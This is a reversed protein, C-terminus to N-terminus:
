EQGSAFGLSSEFHSNHPLADCVSSIKNETVISIQAGNARVRDFIQQYLVFLAVMLWLPWPDGSKFWFHFPIM